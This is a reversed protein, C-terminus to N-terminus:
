LIELPEENGNPFQKPFFHNTLDVVQRYLFNGAAILCTMLLLALFLLLAAVFHVITMAVRAIRSHEYDVDSKLMFVLNSELDLPTSATYIQAHAKFANNPEKKLIRTIEVGEGTPFYGSLAVVDREHYYIHIPQSYAESWEWPYLGPPNYAYLSLIKAKHDRLTHFAMAGGLSLGYLQVGSQKDIWSQIKEKGLWYAGKGVSCFPTSDTLLTAAFGEGAPYTTGLFSLLAPGEKSELAYAVIPSCLAAPTLQLKETITYSCQKWSGEIKMPITLNMKPEPYTYPVISLVHGIFAEVLSEADEDIQLRDWAANLANQLEQQAKRLLDKDPEIFVSQLLKLDNWNSLLSDHGLLFSLIGKSDQDDETSKFNVKVGEGCFLVTKQYIESIEMAKTDLGNSAAQDVLKDYWRPSLNLYTSNPIAM